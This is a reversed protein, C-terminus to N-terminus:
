PGTICKRLICSTKGKGMLLQLVSNQDSQPSVTALAVQVQEERILIDGDIELLLWDPFNVPNWNSHGSNAWEDREQQEKQRKQADQIRHIQQLRSIAVGFAVIAEKTGAGFTTGSTARLETLLEVNTMRPWTDVLQLWRAQPHHSQLSYRVHEVANAAIQKASTIEGGTIRSHLSDSTKQAYAIHKELAAISADMEKAYRCQVFSSPDKFNAVINRLMGIEQPQQKSARPHIPARKDQYNGMFNNIKGPHHAINGSRMTLAGAYSGVARPRMEKPVQISVIPAKLLDSLSLDDNKRSRTSYLSLPLLKAKPTVKNNIDVEVRGITVRYLVEQVQELYLSLEHNRTLRTWEPVVDALAWDVDLYTPNIAILKQTEIESSPWQKLISRALAECSEDVNPGHLSEAKVLQARKKFGTESFPMRSKEMLSILYSMPPAGDARFHFYAAHSPAPIARIAPIMAFAILVRLLNLDVDSSFAITALLFMLSFRDDVNCQLSKQALAGWEAKIDVALHDTLLCKRYCKDYGGVVPADHLLTILTAELSCTPEWDLLLKSVEFSNLRDKSSKRDDRATYVVDWHGSKKRDNVNSRVIARAALHIVDPELKIAEQVECDSFFQSLNASKRLISAVVTTYRDDQMSVTCEPRWVITEMVKTDKPYYGRKPSLDAVDKLKAILDSPLPSWPQYAGTQLLYLAEETGTRRTLPDAVIHSTYAHLLAKIYLLRPEPACDIRGLVDNIAFKLYEGRGMEIDVTVHPGDKSVRFDGLLVLVSKQRHNAVSQIVIKSQLGYWTGADQIPSIIAGLRSSQLLGENNIHFSLEMRKLEVTVRGDSDSSETVRDRHSAFVLIQSPHEFHTFIQAITKFLDSGSELLTTQTPEQFRRVAHYFGGGHDWRVWWNMPKFRWPSQQRIEVHGKYVHLWHYCNEVLPRPLDSGFVGSPIFEILEGKQDARIILRGNRWGLHIRHNNFLGMEAIAFDMGRLPSPFVIPNRTGFLHIYDTHSRYTLPLTGMEQGDILLTGYVYNYHVFYSHQDATSELTYSLYWTDPVIELVPEITDYDGPVHWMTNLSARFTQPDALITEVILERHEYAFLTDQVIANRMNYPMQDFRGTLNYHLSISADLYMRLVESTRLQEDDIHITRKCLLSAWIASQLVNPDETVMPQLERRWGDTIKRAEHLLRMGETRIRDSPTLSTVKLLITVLIEMQVPERWNRRIAELRFRVQQLLKSCLSDDSLPRHVDTFRSGGTTDPGLQLVLRLVLSWTSDSSFNLNTSGLERLLDLWRSHTGVLLGQLATFEHIGVGQTCRAQNAQVENSTPWTPYDLGLSVLPSTPPLRVPFHHWFSAKGSRDTWTEGLCDFYRPKLGCTRIVEDVGIPFGWNAYHCELHAKKYSGLTVQCSTENAYSDIQSYERILSMRDLKDTPERCLTSLILWTADRYAAFVEPCQLEFLTAKAAPEYSPLPHEYIQIRIGKAKHNLDHWECPLRHRSEPMGNWAVFADWICEKENREDITQAHRLSKEEWEVRKAEYAIDADEEIEDRIARLDGQLDEQDYYQAAFCDDAPDDFITRCEANSRPRYRAKLYKRVEQSRIMEGRTLLEIPDLLDPDFGPHYEQLLPYCAVADRDMLVWLEMLHLLQQSKENPYAQDVASIRTAYDRIVGSLQIARLGEPQTSQKVPLVVDELLKSSAIHSSMVRMYPKISAVSQEYLQLLEPATRQEPRPLSAHAALVDRLFRGSSTLRLQFERPYAYQRLSPIRRERLQRHSKWVQRLYGGTTALTREFSGELSLLPNYRRGLAPRNAVQTDSTLKALRRGLKQRLSFAADLPIKKLVDELLQAHLLCMLTKYHLSGVEAGLHHYLYRQVAVRLVLYFASRRWPTRANDFNVTDRVRKRLRTVAIAAGNAELITMLLGSILAPDSTDRIEPITAAAKWTIAAFKTVSESSAQEIFTAVAEQFAEENLTSAPVSVACGPVVPLNLILLHAVGIYIDTV